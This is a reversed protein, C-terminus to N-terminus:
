QDFSNYDSHMRGLVILLKSQFLLGQETELLHRHKRQVVRNQQPTGICSTQHVIGLSFFFNSGAVSKELEMANDLRVIKIKTNFQTRVM